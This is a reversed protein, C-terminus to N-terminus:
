RHEGSSALNPLAWTLSQQLAPRWVSYTHDGPRVHVDVIMKRARLIPAIAAMQRAVEHDASGCDLWIRMPLGSPLATAYIAPDNAAADHASVGFLASLGGTHTPHTFGSLDLITATLGRNRLGLNLACYGGASMGAFVRGHRDPITRLSRDVAPIVGHVLHTEVKERVGDVCESDDLWNRSMQPAVEIVPLGRQALLAGVRAAEGGHFWDKQVGPSGHFLYVVSFRRDPETFYQPPLWVWARTAGFGSSEAPVQLTVLRGRLSSQTSARATSASLGPPPRQTVVDVVDSVNPLYSYYSNVADALLMIALFSALIGAFWDRYGARIAFKHRRSGRYVLLAWCGLTVLALLVLFRTSVVTLNGIDPVLGHKCVM